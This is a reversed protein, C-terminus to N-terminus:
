DVLWSVATYVQAHLLDLPLSSVCGQPHTVCCSHLWRVTTNTQISFKVDPPSAAENVMFHVAGLTSEPNATMWDEADSRSAFGLVQVFVCVCVGCVV